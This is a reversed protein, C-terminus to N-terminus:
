LHSTKNSLIQSQTNEIQEQFKPWHDLGKQELEEIFSKYKELQKNGKPPRLRQAVILCTNEKM